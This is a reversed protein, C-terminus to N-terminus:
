SNRQQKPELSRSTLCRRPQGVFLCTVNRRCCYVGNKRLGAVARITVLAEFVKHDTKPFVGYDDIVEVIGHIEITDCTIDTVVNDFFVAFRNSHRLNRVVAALVSNDGYIATRCLAVPKGSLLFRIYEPLERPVFLYM